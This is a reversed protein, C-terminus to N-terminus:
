SVVGALVDNRAIRDLTDTLLRALIDWEDGASEGIIIRGLGLRAAERRTAYGSYSAHSRMRTLIQGNRPEDRSRVAVLGTRRDMRPDDHKGLFELPVRPFKEASASSDPEEREKLDENLPASKSFAIVLIIANYMLMEFSICLVYVVVHMVRTPPPFM